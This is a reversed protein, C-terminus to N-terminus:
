TIANALKESSASREIVAEYAMGRRTKKIIFQLGGSLIREETKPDRKLIGQLYDNLTKHGGETSSLKVSFTEEIAQTSLGGGALYRNGAIQYFHTPLLDYEDSVEGIIAEIVDELTLLGAVKGKSDKVVAIHQCGKTLKNLLVSLSETDSVSIIPRCIGRLSPDKPNINLASVIDKFNVYGIVDDINKGQILPLRTHHEIHAEILAQMLTMDTSLCKIEDRSVMIDRVRMKSLTMTRALIKEQDKSIMNNLTAFRALVSIEKVADSREGDRLKASFPKNLKETLWLLPSFIMMLLQMPVASTVAVLKNYRVGWTKPLIETWQIMILSFGISYLILWKHGFLSNFQAGSISAGITHAFTNIVLILAIPKGINDKFGQWIKAMRPQKEAIQAIDSLSLSLLCAELVSCMFSISLAILVTILFAILM